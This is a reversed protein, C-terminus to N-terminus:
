WIGPLLRHPTRQTYERYGPLDQLLMDEEDRIRSVLILPTFSAPILAWYSGLALPSFVLMTLVALYMPHRVVAYPGTTIVAQGEEVAVVRSAYSNERIVFFFLLYGGVVLVAGCIVLPWPVTSWGFRQDLGPILFMSLWVVSGLKQITNQQKREERMRLRRALLAPDNRILYRVVLTMPIFLVALYVWAQWYRITGASVFFIAGLLLAGSSFRTVALKEIERVEM